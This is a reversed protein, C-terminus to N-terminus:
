WRLVGATQLPDLLLSPLVGLAVTVVGAVALAWGPGPGTAVAVEDEPEEMYALAIVRLYFFAAVVSALVAVIVLGELGADVAAGFVLVKAMFGATGPIGALSLLFLTLLGGLVPNRRGLGRYAQLATREEGVRSVLIVVGFAGLIMAAYAALYFMAGAIGEQNGAAVAVLVFGAHAISSYALMRKVDDQAIALVSGVVMTLASIAVVAPTLEWSVPGLAVQAVRILAAFGAVKTGAAMFGAVPTPAGQYVDPTWMHFPVAAVKFAFGVALLAAATLPLALGQTTGSLADAIGGISTTGAAGYAMAIGYLFFASSFAGLLFYKLSAEQSSLRRWSFGAMVYLSLSLVELALFVVILDAAAALLTMGSAAFLLLAYYEGRGEGTRHLYHASFSIALAASALIVLRFFLAYRDVAVMGGLVTLGEAPPVFWQRIVVVAAAVVGVMAGTAVVRQDRIPRAADVVLILMAVGALILEPLIPVLNLEPTQPV